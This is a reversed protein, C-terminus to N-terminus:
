KLKIDGFYLAGSAAGAMSEYVFGSNIVYAASADYLSIVNAREYLLELAQRILSSRAAADMETKMAEVAADYTDDKEMNVGYNAGSSSMTILLSELSGSVSGLPVITLELEGGVLKDYWANGDIQEIKADIGLKILDSQVSQAIASEEWVTITLPSGDYNSKSLYEKALAEDYIPGYDTGAFERMIKQSFPDTTGQGIGENALKVASDRNIGHYIAKRLNIDEAMRKNLPLLTNCSWTSTSLVVNAKDGDELISLQSIPANMMLDAEGTEIAVMATSPDVPPTVIINEVAPKGLHYDKFAKLTITGDGGMSVFTYAGSGIPAKEFAAPDKEYIAKPLIYINEIGFTLLNIYPATKYLTVTHDDNKEYGSIRSQFSYAYPGEHYFVDMSFIVDDATVASGNHFKADKNLHFVTKEGTDEWSDALMPQIEGASNMKVLGDYLAHIVNPECLGIDVPVLSDSPFMAIYTLTDRNGGDRSCAGLSLLLLVALLISLAKKM